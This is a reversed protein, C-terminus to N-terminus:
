QRWREIQQALYPGISIPKLEEGVAREREGVGKEEQAVVASNGFSSSPPVNKEKEERGTDHIHNHYTGGTIHNSNPTTRDGTVHLYRKL